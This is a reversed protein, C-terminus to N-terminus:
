FKKSIVILEYKKRMAEKLTVYPASPAPVPEPDIAAIPPSWTLKEKIEANMKALLQIMEESRDPRNQLEAIIPVYKNLISQKDESTISARPPEAESVKKLVQKKRLRRAVHQFLLTLLSGALFFIILIIIKM